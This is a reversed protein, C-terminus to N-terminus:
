AIMPQTIHYGAKQPQLYPNFFTEIRTLRYPSSAVLLLFGAAAPPVFMLFHILKAGAALLVICAVLAILVGTGLDEKAVAGAILGAAILGPALGAFFRPMMSARCAAYAAMVLVLGWKAIESPQISLSRAGPLTIWRHSGNVQRALGPLYATALVALMLCCGVVLISGSFRTHSGPTTEAVGALRGTPMLSVAAMACVALGMYASSRSLVIGTLLHLFGADSPAPPPELGPAASVPDINMGASNVMVVGIALLAIACLFVVQGPRLM